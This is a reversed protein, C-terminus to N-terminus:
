SGVGLDLLREGEQTSAIASKVAEAFPRLMIYVKLECHDTIM